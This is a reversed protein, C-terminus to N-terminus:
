PAMASPWRRMWPPPPTRFWPSTWIPAYKETVSEFGLIHFEIVDKPSCSITYRGASDTTTTSQTLGKTNKAVVIVGTLVDGSDDRVVGKVNINQALAPLAALVALIIILLKKM